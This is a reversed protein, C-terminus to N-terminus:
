WAGGCGGGALGVRGPCWGTMWPLDHRGGRGRGRGQVGVEWWGWGGPCWGTMWPLAHWGGRGRGRGEEGVEWWGWGGPADDQWGHYTVDRVGEGVVRRWGWRGGVWGGPADVLWGNYAVRLLVPHSWKVEVWGGGGRGGVSGVRGPCWCTMWQLGRSTLCSPKVEGWSVGRWGWRRGVGGERPMLLDDM